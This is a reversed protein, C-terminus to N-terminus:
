KIKTFDGRFIAVDSSFGGKNVNQFNKLPDYPVAKLRLDTATLRGISSLIEYAAIIRTTEAGVLAVQANLYEHEADLLNLTTRSGFNAEVKVGDLALKAATAQAQLARSEAVAATFGEWAEIVAQRVARQASFTKMRMQNETQRSQRVRSSTSGGTYLPLTARVGVSQTNERRSAYAAPDYIKGVSGTLNVQPLSEGEISRTSDRAADESYRAMIISPNNKEAMELAEQETAPISVAWEPKQLNLPSLGIVQEFAARSKKVQGGAAILGATAGALRSEAQSVDTKTIDGLNFRERAAQLHSKLVKENNANLEVIKRDRIFNMYAAVADSLVLQEVAKLAAREAKIKNYSGSVKAVTSGGSYLSQTVALSLTKPDSNLAGTNIKNHNSTYDATGSVSPKFGAAAQAYTEDVSRLSARAAELDPNKQYAAVLADNLTLPPPEQKKAFAAATQLLMAALVFATYRNLLVTYNM